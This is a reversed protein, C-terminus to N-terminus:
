AQKDQRTMAAKHDSEPFPSVERSEQTHHKITNQRKGTHHGPDPTDIGKKYLYPFVYSWRCNEYINSTKLPQPRFIHMNTNKFIQALTEGKTTKSLM